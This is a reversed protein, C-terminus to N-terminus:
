IYTRTEGAALAAQASISILIVAFSMAGGCCVILSVRHPSDSVATTQYRQLYTSRVTLPTKHLLHTVFAAAVPRTLDCPHM